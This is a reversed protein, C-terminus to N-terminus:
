NNEFDCTSEQDLSCSYFSYPRRALELPESSDSPVILVRHDSQPASLACSGALGQSSSTTQLGPRYLSLPSNSFMTSDYSNGQQCRSQEGPNVRCLLQDCLSLGTWPRKQSGVTRGLTDLLDPTALLAMLDRDATQAQSGLYSDLPPRFSMQQSDFSISMEFIAMIGTLMLMGLSAYLYVM